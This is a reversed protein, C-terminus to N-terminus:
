DFIKALDKVPLTIVNKGFPYSEAVMKDHKYKLLSAKLKCPLVKLLV